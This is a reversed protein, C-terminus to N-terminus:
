NTLSRESIKFARCSTICCVRKQMNIVVMFTIWVFVFICIWRISKRPSPGCLSYSSSSTQSSGSNKMLDFCKVFSPSEAVDNRTKMEISVNAVVENRKVIRPRHELSPSNISTSGRCPELAKRAVSNEDISDEAMNELTSSRSARNPHLPLHEGESDEMEDNDYIRKGDHNKNLSM